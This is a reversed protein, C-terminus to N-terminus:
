GVMQRSEQYDFIPREVNPNLVWVARCGDADETFRAMTYEGNDMIRRHMKVDQLDWWAKVDMTLISSYTGFVQVNAFEGQEPLKAALELKRDALWQELHKKTAFATHAAGRCTVTYWYGCTREHQEATLSTVILNSYTNAHM